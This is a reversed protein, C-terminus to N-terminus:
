TYTINVLLCPKDKALYGTVLMAVSPTSCTLIGTCIPNFPSLLTIIYVHYLTQFYPTYKTRYEVCLTFIKVQVCGSYANPVLESTTSYM